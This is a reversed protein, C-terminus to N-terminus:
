FREKRKGMHKKLPYAAKPAHLYLRPRCIQEKGCGERQICVVAPEKGEDGHNKSEPDKGEVKLFGLRARKHPAMLDEYPYFIPLM